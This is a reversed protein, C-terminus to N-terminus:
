RYVVNELNDDAYADSNTLHGDFPGVKNVHLGQKFVIQLGHEREWDCSCELSIYVLEDGYPRRSVMPTSGFKIHKWIEDPSAIEVYWDDEPVLQEFIDKYYKYIHDQAKKLVSEDISLFNKIAEHFEEKAEDQEYEEFIFEFQDGGLVNVAIPKSRLWDDFQDKELEGLLPIEIM